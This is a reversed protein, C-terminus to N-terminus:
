PKEREDVLETAADVQLSVAGVSKELQIGISQKKEGIPRTDRIINEKFVLDRTEGRVRIGAAEHNIGNDVMCDANLPLSIVFTNETRGIIRAVTTHFGGSNKDRVTIGDGVEFGSPDKLTVQEEGYDGDIQLPSLTGPAKRLITKAGQGRVTVHSRLHLSDRMTFEGAGIEVTGGGLSAVYDVAAQLARQDTGRIEGEDTGVTVVARERAATHMVRPLQTEEAQAPSRSEPSAQAFVVLLVAASNLLKMLNVRFSSHVHIRQLRIIQRQQSHILEDYEALNGSSGNNAGGLRTDKSNRMGTTATPSGVICSAPAERVEAEVSRQGSPDKRVPM